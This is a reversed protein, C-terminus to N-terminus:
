MSSDSTPVSIVHMFYPRINESTLEIYIYLEVESQLIYSFNIFIQNFLSIELCLAETIMLTIIITCLSKVPSLLITHYSLTKCTSVTKNIFVFTFHLSTVLM